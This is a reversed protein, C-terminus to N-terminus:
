GPPAEQVIHVIVTRPPANAPPLENPSTKPATAGPLAGLAQRLEAEKAAEVDILVDVHQEDPVGPHSTARLKTAVAVVQDSVQRLQGAAATITIESLDLTPPPMANNSARQLSKALEQQAQERLLKQNPNNAEHRAIFFLGIGVNVAILVIFAIGVRLSLKRGRELQAPDDEIVELSNRKMGSHIRRAAALEKQLFPDKALQGELEAREWDNLKGDLYDFLKGPSM